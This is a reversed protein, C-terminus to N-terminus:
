AKCVRESEQFAKIRQELITRAEVVSNSHAVRAPMTMHHLDGLFYPTMDFCLDFDVITTANQGRHTGKLRIM